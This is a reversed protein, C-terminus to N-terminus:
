AGRLGPRIPPQMRTVRVCNARKFIQTLLDGSSPKSAEFDFRRKPNSFSPWSPRGLRGVPTFVGLRLTRLKNVSLGALFAQDDL